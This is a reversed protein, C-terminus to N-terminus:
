KGPLLKGALKIVQGSLKRESTGMLIGILLALGGRRMFDHSSIKGFSVELIGLYLALGVVLALAGVFLLRVGPELRDEEPTTLEEFTLDETRLGYSLWAGIMAGCWLLSFTALLDIEANGCKL